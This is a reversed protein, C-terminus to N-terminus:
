KEPLIPVKGDLVDQLPRFEDAHAALWVKVEDLIAEVTEDKIPKGYGYPAETKQWRLLTPVEANDEGVVQDLTRIAIQLKTEKDRDWDTSAKRVSLMQEVDSILREAAERVRYYEALRSMAPYVRNGRTLNFCEALAPVADKHLRRLWLAHGAAVRVEVSPDNKAARKLAELVHGNGITNGEWAGKGEKTLGLAIASEVRSPIPGRELVDVLVPAVRSGYHWVLSSATSADRYDEAHWIRHVWVHYRLEYPFWFVGLLVLATLLPLAILLFRPKLFFLPPKKSEQGNM